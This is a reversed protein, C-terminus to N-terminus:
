TENLLADIISQSDDSIPFMRGDQETKLQVGKSEFWKITDDSKFKPFIKKLFKEGRPYNKVLKSIELPQHTVNCRGGGSIKVKSLLKTSKEFITVERGEGAAHIAAFFGSAGGGVVAIKM